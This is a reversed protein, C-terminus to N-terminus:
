TARKPPPELTKAEIRDTGGDREKIFARYDDKWEEIYADMDAHIEDWVEQPADEPAVNKKRVDSPTDPLHVLWLSGQPRVERDAKLAGAAIRRRITSASLGLYRAAENVTCRLVSAAPEIRSATKRSQSLRGSALAKRAAAVDPNQGHRPRSM